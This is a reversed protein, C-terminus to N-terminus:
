SAAEALAHFHWELGFEDRAWEMFSQLTAYILRVQDLPINESSLAIMDGTGCTVYVPAGLQDKHKGEFRVPVVAWTVKLNPTQPTFFREGDELYENDRMVDKVFRSVLGAISKIAQRKRDVEAFNALVEETQISRKM